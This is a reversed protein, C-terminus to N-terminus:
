KTATEDLDGCFAYRYHFVWSERVIFIFFSLMPEMKGLIAITEEEGYVTFSVEGDTLPAVFLWRVPEIANILPIEFRERCRYM